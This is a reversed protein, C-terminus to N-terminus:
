RYDVCTIYSVHTIYLGLHKQRNTGVLSIGCGGEIIQGEGASM